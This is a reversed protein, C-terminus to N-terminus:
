CANLPQHNCLNNAAIRKPYRKQWLHRQLQTKTVSKNKICTEAFEYTTQVVIINPTEFLWYQRPPTISLRPNSGQGPLVLSM